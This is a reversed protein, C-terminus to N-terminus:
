ITSKLAKIIASFFGKAVKKEVKKARNYRALTVRVAAGNECQERWITENHM